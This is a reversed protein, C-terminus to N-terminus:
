GVYDLIAAGPNENWGTIRRCEGRSQIVDQSLRIAGTGEARGAPDVRKGCERGLRNGLAIGVNVLVYKITPRRLRRTAACHIKAAAITQAATRESRPCHLAAAARSAAILMPHLQTTAAVTITKRVYKSRISVHLRM